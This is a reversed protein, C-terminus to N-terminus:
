RRRGTSSRRPRRGPRRGEAARAGAPRRGPLAVPQDPPPEAGLPRSRPARRHDRPRPARPSVGQADAPYPDGGRGGDPFAGATGSSASGSRPPSAPSGPSSMRPPPRATRARPTARRAEPPRRTRRATPRPRRAPFSRVARTPSRPSRRTAPAAPCSPPPTARAAPRRSSSRAPRATRTSSSTRSTRRCITSTPFIARRRRAARCTRLRDPCRGPTAARARPARAPAGAVGPPRARRTGAGAGARRRRAAAGARQRGDPGPGHGLRADPELFGLLPLPRRGGAAIEPLRPRSHAGAWRVRRRATGAGGLRDVPLQRRRQDRARLWRGRGPGQEPVAAGEGIAKRGASAAALAQLAAGTSDPDSPAQPQFGWGGNEDQAARLWRLPRRLKGTDVGAARMALVYFATMNVQGNVSGDRDKYRRLGKVLDLGAFSRPELGAGALALITRELDTASRVRDIEAELYDVPSKGRSTVDLPNRGAAELGLMVWGTM